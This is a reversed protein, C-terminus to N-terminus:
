GADRVEVISISAPPLAVPFMAEPVPILITPSRSITPRAVLPKKQPLPFRYLSKRSARKSRGTTRNPVHSPSRSLGAVRRAAPDDEPAYTDNSVVTLRVTRTFTPSENTLTALARRLMATSIGPHLTRSTRAAAREEQFLVRPEM